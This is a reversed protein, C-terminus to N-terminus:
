DSFGSRLQGFSHEVCPEVLLFLIAVRGVSSLRQYLCIWQSLMVTLLREWYYLALSIPWLEYDDLVSHLQTLM